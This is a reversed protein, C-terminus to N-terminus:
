IFYNLVWLVGMGTGITLLINGSRWAVLVAAIAALPRILVTLGEPPWAQPMFAPVALAALVSPPVYRLGRRAWNPLRDGPIFTLFLARSLLTGLGGAIMLITFTLDNM